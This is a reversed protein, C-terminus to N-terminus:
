CGVLWFFEMVGGFTLNEMRRSFKKWPKIIMWFRQYSDLQFVGCSKVLRAQVFFELLQPYEPCRSCERM